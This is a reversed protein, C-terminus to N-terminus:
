PPCLTHKESGCNECTTKNPCNASIHNFRHCNFCRLIKLRKEEECFAQKGNLKFPYVINCAKSLDPSSAFYARRIPMPKKGNRHFVRRVQQVKCEKSELFEQLQSDKIKIDINKLYGASCLM